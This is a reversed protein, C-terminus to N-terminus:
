LDLSKLLKAYNRGAFIGAGSADESAGTVTSLSVVRGHIAEYGLRAFAMAELSQAPAFADALTLVAISSGSLRRLEDSFLKMLTPNAAGGGAVFIKRLPYGADLVFNVYAKAMTHATLATANAIRSAGRGPLKAMFAENFLERGTSKPPKQKFYFLNGIKEIARWDISQISAAAIKGDKDFHQKGKTFSEVALDILANGPGTDFALLDKSAKTIYTMNAIGGVNHIAFPLLDRFQSLSNARLWHYYPVLPAGQGGRALDPQRFCATVTVGTKAAVITPDLLQVSIRNKPQHWVTQGHIALLMRERPANWRKLTAECFTAMWESYDRTLRAAEPITLHGRQAVRLRQRLASSFKKNAVHTLSERGDTIALGAADAGDCSTGTMVGLSYITKM